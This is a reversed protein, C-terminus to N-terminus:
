VKIITQEGGIWNVGLGETIITLLIMSSRIIIIIGKGGAVIYETFIVLNENSDTVM